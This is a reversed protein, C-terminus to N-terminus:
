IEPQKILASLRQDVCSLCIRRSLIEKVFAEVLFLLDIMDCNVILSYDVSEMCTMMGGVRRNRLSPWTTFLSILGFM